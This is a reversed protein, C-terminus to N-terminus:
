EVPASRGAVEKVRYHLELHARDLTDVRGSPLIVVYGLTVGGIRAPRIVTLREHSGAKGPEWPVLTTGPPWSGGDASSM